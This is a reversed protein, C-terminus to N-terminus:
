ALAANQFLAATWGHLERLCILLHTRRGHPPWMQFVDGRWAQFPQVSKLRIYANSLRSGYKSFSRHEM